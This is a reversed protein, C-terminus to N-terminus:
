RKLKPDLADRLGDGLLNIAMVTLFIFIGPPVWLWPRQMLDIFNNVSQIMNGWSAAPPAVGMGLYSLASETMIASGINLTASVIIQPVVNPILHKFIQRSDKLGLAQAAQMFEQERLSLIQGRVLRAISPWALLGIILMVYFIRVDSSVNLDSMIAGLIILIPLFPICLFIDVIRMIVTDIKGGYYGAIAGLAGGIIVEIIVAVFGVLLSIRGAYMLRTLIDRGLLDTGLLYYGSPPQKKMAFNMTDATYPTFLPGIFSFLVMFILIGLGVMALKNKRLRRIVMKWPSLSQSKDIIVEKLENKELKTNM